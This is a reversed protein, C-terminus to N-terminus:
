TSNNLSLIIKEAAINGKPSLHCTQRAENYELFRETHLQKITKKFYTLNKTETITLIDQFNLPSKDFLLVLISDKLSINDILIRKIEQEEWIGEINREIIKEVLNLTHNPDLSSEERILEALIWKCSSLIFTADQHNPSVLGIHGVGRKNRVCYIAYLVRPILIRYSEKGLANEYSTLVTNNFISIPQSFPTFIGNFLKFELFRRISEVFHGSELESTKWEKLFYKQEIEIFTRCINEAIIDTSALTLTQKINHEM